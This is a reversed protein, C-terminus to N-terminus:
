SGLVIGEVFDSSPLIEGTVERLGGGFPNPTRWINSRGLRAGWLGKQNPAVWYTTWRGLAM